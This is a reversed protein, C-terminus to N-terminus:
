KSFGPRWVSQRNWAAVRALGFLSHQWSSRDPEAGAGDLLEEGLVEGDSSLATQRKPVPLDRGVRHSM